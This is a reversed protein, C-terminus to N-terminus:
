MALVYIKINLLQSLLFFHNEANKETGKIEIFTHTYHAQQDGTLIIVTIIVVIQSQQCQSIQFNSHFM